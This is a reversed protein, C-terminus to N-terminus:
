SASPPKRESPPPIQAGNFDTHHQHLLTLILSNAASVTAREAILTQTHSTDSDQNAALVVLL